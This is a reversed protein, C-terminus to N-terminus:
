TDFTSCYRNMSPLCCANKSLTPASGSVSLADEDPGVRHAADARREAADGPEELGRLAPPDVAVVFRQRATALDMLDM